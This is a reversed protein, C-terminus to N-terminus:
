AVKSSVRRDADEGAPLVPDNCALLQEGGLDLRAGDLAADTCAPEMGKVAPHVGNAM